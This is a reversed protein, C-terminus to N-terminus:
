RASFALRDGESGGDARGDTQRPLGGRAFTRRQCCRSVGRRDGAAAERESAHRDFPASPASRGHPSFHKGTRHFARTIWNVCDTQSTKRNSSFSVTFPVESLPYIPCQCLQSIRSPLVLSPFRGPHLLSKELSISPFVYSSIGGIKLTPEVFTPLFQRLISSVEREWGGCGETASRGVSRTRRSLCCYHCQRRRGYACKGM